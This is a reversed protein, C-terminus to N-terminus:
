AILVQISPVVDTTRAEPKLAFDIIKFCIDETNQKYFKLVAQCTQLVLELIFSNIENPEKSHKEIAKLLVKFPVILQQSLQFGMIDLTCMIGYIPPSANRTIDWHEKFLFLPL